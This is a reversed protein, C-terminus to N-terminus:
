LWATAPNATTAKVSHVDLIFALEQCALVSLGGLEFIHGTVVEGAFALMAITATMALALACRSALENTTLTQEAIAGLLITIFASGILLWAVPGQSLVWVSGTLLVVTAAKAGYGALRPHLSEAAIAAYFVAFLAPLFEFLFVPDDFRM